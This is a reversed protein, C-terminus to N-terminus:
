KDIDSCAVSVETYNNRVRSMVLPVKRVAQAYYTLAKTAIDVLFETAKDSM